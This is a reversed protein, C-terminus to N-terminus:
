AAHYNHLLYYYCCIALHKSDNDFIAVTAQISSGLVVKNSLSRVITLNFTKNSEVINNDIIPVDFSM